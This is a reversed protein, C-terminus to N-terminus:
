HGWKHEVALHEYGPPVQPLSARVMEREADNVAAKARAWAWYAQELAVKVPEGRDFAKCLREHQAAASVERARAESLASM